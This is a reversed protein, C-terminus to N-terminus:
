ASAQPRHSMRDPLSPRECLGCKYYGLSSRLMDLDTELSSIPLFRFLKNVGRNETEVRAPWCNRCNTQRSVFLRSFCMGIVQLLWQPTLLVPMFSHINQSRVPSFRKADIKKRRDTRRIRPQWYIILKPIKPIKSSKQHIIPTSQFPFSYSFRQRSVAIFFSRANIGSFSQFSTLFSTIASVLKIWPLKTLLCTSQVNMCM